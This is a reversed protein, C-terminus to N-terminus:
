STIQTRPPPLPRFARGSGKFFRVFFEFLLLRTTQIGVVLGELVLMLVNGLLLVIGYGVGGAAEAAGVVAVSLGAHALAFAGVRAFSVTNVLLQLALEVFRALGGALAALRSGAATVMAGLAFWVAGAPVLWLAQREFVAALAGVYALVLGADSAWWRRAEFRWAAEVAGLVRGALLIVVGLAVGAALVRLPHQLPHM